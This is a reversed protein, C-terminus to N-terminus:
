ASEYGFQRSAQKRVQLEQPPGPWATFVGTLDHPWRNANLLSEVRAEMVRMYKLQYDYLASSTRGPIWRALAAVHVKCPLSM